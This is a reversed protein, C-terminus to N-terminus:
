PAAGRGDAPGGGLDGDLVWRGRRTEQRLAAALAALYRERPWPRAGLAALHPAPLQADLLGIGWRELQRVLTVLAVKSADDVHRFMSEGVFVGGLCVGYVGGVLHGDRWAEASHVFGMAHLRTYAERMAPTIWTGEEHARPVGACAAIVSPCATDLRVTFRGQRLTRALRRAVHLDPVPLVMRPDPSFWLLPYGDHPWPFIGSAYALLLREPSLDGGIAVLDGPGALAPDPFVLRQSLRYVPM